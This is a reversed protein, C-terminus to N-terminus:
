RITGAALVYGVGRVTRIAKRARPGLKRRLHHIHVDLGRDSVVTGGRGAGARLNRRSLPRGREALLALLLDLETATLPVPRGDQLVQRASPDVTVDEIRHLEAEPPGTRRLIARIRAVLERLIVPKPVYDDAGAELGRIRDDADGRATLFLVPVRTKARIRELTEHGNLDPMMVDLVILDPPSRTLQELAQLGDGAQGVAFGAHELYTALGERFLPDDDVLLVRTIM